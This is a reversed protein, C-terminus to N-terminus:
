FGVAKGASKRRDNAGFFTQNKVDVQISEAAGWNIFPMVRYGKEWLKQVVQPKLAYPETVVVNPMGQYHIRPSNVAETVTMQHDIINTIVQVVTTPITSGGPSGTVLFVKGDNKVITPSMSSLPRKQPEIINAKGQVLGFQNAEGPKSAFDDMENNLFFGTDSAIVGAGFNSNITYTVAVSNGERDSVSYHTTNTGEQTINQYLKDPSITRDSKIQSRIQAAYEQSLLKQLPIKIFEPDGLYQNRDRYAFLMASLKLHLSEASKFGLKNLSYGGLVNLIQCVTTGGGPPPASIIQYGRYNCTIPQQQVINYNAFDQLSLIGKNKQSEKVIKQAIAGQYFAKEGQKAILQLTKALDKQILRAGVQYSDKGNNLFINAVNVEQFKNQNAELIQVDGAQLVFGKEALEIAPNIVQQRSLTGYQSLAYELGKVTGPIGVALYGKTSLESIVKGEEDLYMNANAKLPAKERFNIFIDEGNALHILMFGGGGLNGCCPDTVALAYGIAVAADIANGGAQLVNIGVQSAEQQTTVVMGNKGSVSESTNRDSGCSFQQCSLWSLSQYVYTLPHYVSGSIIIDLVIILLVLGSSTLSLFLIIKFVKKWNM